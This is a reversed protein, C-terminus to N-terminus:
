KRRIDKDREKYKELQHVLKDILGDISKYMDETEEKAYVETNPIHVTAEAVQRLKEVNLIVHIRTIKKSHKALRDFKNNVFDNLTQTIELNHGTIQIPLM